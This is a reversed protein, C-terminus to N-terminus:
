SKLKGAYNRVLELIDKDPLERVAQCIAKEFRREFATKTTKIVPKKTTKRRRM